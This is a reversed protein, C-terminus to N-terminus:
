HVANNGAADLPTGDVLYGIDAAYASEPLASGPSHPDPGLTEPHNIANGARNMPTGDPLYGVDNVFIARPLPSGPAHPDPQINEPHNVANGARNMPTGDPLYGVDNGFELDVYADKQIAYAFGGAKRVPASAQTSVGVFAAAVQQPASAAAPAPPVAGARVANNGATVLDTGDVLYGVDATYFSTPLPSGPAHMDPQMTEPHNLANGAANMPTGDPLYGVSNTFEARPLPAGPTHPDPQINEPHNIANGARNMPTGDPLYGVDNLYELDAHSDRQLSYPFKIGHLAKRAVKSTRGHAMLGAATALLAMSCVPFSSTSSADWSESAAESQFGTAQAGKPALAGPAVFAISANLFVFGVAALALASSMKSM